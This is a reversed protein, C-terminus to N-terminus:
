ILAAALRKNENSRVGALVEAQYLSPQIRSMQRLRRAVERPGNGPHNHYRIGSGIRLSNKSRKRGIRGHQDRFAWAPVSFAGLAALLSAAILSKRM